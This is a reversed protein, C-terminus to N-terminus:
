HGVNEFGNCGSFFVLYYTVYKKKSIFCHITIKFHIRHPRFLFFRFIEFYFHYSRIFLHTIIKHDFDILYVFVVNM